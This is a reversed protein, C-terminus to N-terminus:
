CSAEGPSPHSQRFVAPCPVVTSIVKSAPHFGIMLRLRACPLIPLFGKPWEVALAVKAGPGEQRASAFNARPGHGIRDEPQGRDSWGEGGVRAEAFRLHIDALRGA